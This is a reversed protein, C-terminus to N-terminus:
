REMSQKGSSEACYSKDTMFVLECVSLDVCAILSLDVGKLVLTQIIQNLGSYQQRCYSGAIMFSFLIQHIYSHIFVSNDGGIL